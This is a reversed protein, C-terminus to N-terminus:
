GTLVSAHAEAIAVAQATQLASALPHNSLDEPAM